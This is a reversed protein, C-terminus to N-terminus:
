CFISGAPQNLASFEESARSNTDGDFISESKRFIQNHNKKKSTQQCMRWLLYLKLLYIAHSCKHEASFICNHIISHTQKTSFYNYKILIRSHFIHM